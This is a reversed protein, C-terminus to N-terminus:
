YKIAFKSRLYLYWYYLKLKNNAKKYFSQRRLKPFLFNSRDKIKALGNKSLVKPQNKILELGNTLAMWYKQIVHSEYLPMNDKVFGLVFDYVKITQQIKTENFISRSVSDERAVVYCYEKSTYIAREMKILLQPTMMEDIGVNQNFIVIDKFLKTKFLNILSPHKLEEFFVKIISETDDLIRNIGGFSNRKVDKGEEDVVKSAFHVMDANHEKALAILDGVTNLELYDDSDVFLIYDGTVHKLAMNYASGIGGNEKDFIQIRSDASAFARMIKLSGDTSGDNVVIIELDDYTQEKVSNLCRHLFSESNYVPILVSVKM